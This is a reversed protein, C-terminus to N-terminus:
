LMCDWVMYLRPIMMYYYCDSLFAASDLHVVWMIAALDKDILMFRKANFKQWAISSTLPFKHRISYM